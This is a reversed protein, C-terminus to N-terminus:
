DGGDAVSEVDRQSAPMTHSDPLAPTYTIAGGIVIAIVEGPLLDDLGHIPPHTLVRFRFITTDDDKIALLHYLEDPMEQRYVYYGQRLLDASVLNIAIAKNRLRALEDHMVDLLTEITPETM